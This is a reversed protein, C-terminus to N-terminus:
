RHGPPHSVPYPLLRSKPRPTPWRRFSYFILPSLEANQAFSFCQLHQSQSFSLATFGTAANELLVEEPGKGVINGKDRHRCPAKVKSESLATNGYLKIENQASKAMRTKRM